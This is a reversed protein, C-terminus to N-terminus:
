PFYRGPIRLRSRHDLWASERRTKLLYFPEAVLKAGARTKSESRKQEKSFTTICDYDM